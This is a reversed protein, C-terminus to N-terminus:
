YTHGRRSAEFVNAKYYAGKTGTVYSDRNEGKVPPKCSNYRKKDEESLEDFTLTKVPLTNRVTLMESKLPNKSRQDVNLDECCKKITSQKVKVEAQILAFTAGKQRM